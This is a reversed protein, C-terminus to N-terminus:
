PGRPSFIYFSFHKRDIVLKQFSINQHFKTHVLTIQLDRRSILGIPDLDCNSLFFIRKQAINLKLLSIKIFSLTYCAYAFVKSDIAGGRKRLIAKPGHITLTFTTSLLFDFNQKWDIVQTKFSIHLLIKTHLFSISLTAKLNGYPWPLTQYPLEIFSPSYCTWTSVERPIGKWSFDLELNINSSISIRKVTWLL